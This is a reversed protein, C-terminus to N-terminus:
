QTTISTISKPPNQPLIQVVQQNGSLPDYLILQTSSSPPNRPPLPPPLDQTPLVKVPQAQTPLVKHKMESLEIENNRKKNNQVVIYVIISIIMIGITGYCLIAAWVCKSYALRMNNNDPKYKVSGSINIAAASGLYGSLGVLFLLLFGILIL